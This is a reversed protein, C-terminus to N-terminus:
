VGFCIVAADQVSPLKEMSSIYVDTKYFSSTMKKIQAVVQALPIGSMDNGFIPKMHHEQLVTFVSNLSENIADNAVPSEFLDYMENLLTNNSLFQEDNGVVIFKQLLNETEITVRIQTIAQQLRPATMHLATTPDHINWDKLSATTATRVCTLLDDMGGRELFASYSLLIADQANVETENSADFEQKRYMLGATFYVQMTLATFLLAFAYATTMLRTVTEVQIKMWLISEQHKTDDSQLKRIEKLQARYVSTETGDDIKRQLMSGLAVLTASIERQCSQMCRKRMHNNFRRRQERNHPPQAAGNEDPDNENDVTNWSNWAWVALHYTGYAALATTIATGLGFRRRRQYPQNAQNNM